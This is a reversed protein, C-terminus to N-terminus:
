FGDPRIWFSERWTEGPPIRRAIDYVRRHSPPVGEEFYRRRALEVVQLRNAFFPSAPQTRM